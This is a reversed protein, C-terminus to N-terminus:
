PAKVVQVADCHVTGKADAATLLVWAPQGAVFRWTGLSGFGKEGSALIRKVHEIASGGGRLGAANDNATSHDPKRFQSAEAPASDEGQPHLFTELSLLLAHSEQATATNALERLLRAPHPTTADIGLSKLLERFLSSVLGRWEATRNRLEAESHNRYKEFERLLSRVQAMKEEDPLRDPLQLALRAITDRFEKYATVDVEPVGRAAGEVVLTLVREPNALEVAAGDTANAGGLGTKQRLSM